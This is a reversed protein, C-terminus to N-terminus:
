NWIMDGSILPMEMLLASLLSTKGSGNKGVIMTLKGRPIVIDRIYLIQTLKQPNWSFKCDKVSVAIDDPMKLLLSDRHWSDTKRHLNTTVPNTPNHAATVAQTQLGPMHLKRPRIVVYPTNRLLEKRAHLSLRKHDEAFRLPEKSESIVLPTHPESNALPAPKDPIIIKIKPKENVNKLTINSPLSQSKDKIEYMDLSADSKSLIRAMNRIGEFQKQIENAALFTELRKTSVVASLIIPVTIPFILLPVTLQQFLALASFLRSATFEAGTELYVYVSLTVFTILVSSIHTLITMITWYFSDKNLYKLEQKRAENIKKIFVNDWANLKILKIGVFCDHLKRLRNDTFK